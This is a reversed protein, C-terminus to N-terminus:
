FECLDADVTIRKELPLRAKSVSDVLLVCLSHDLVSQFFAAIEENSYFSRLNVLVFLKDRSGRFLDAAASLPDKAGVKRNSFRSICM